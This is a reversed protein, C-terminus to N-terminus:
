KNVQTQVCTRNYFEAMELSRKECKKKSDFTNVWIQVNPTSLGSVLILVWINM